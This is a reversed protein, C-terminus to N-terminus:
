SSDSQLIPVESVPGFHTEMAKIQSDNGDSYLNQSALAVDQSNPWDIIDFHKQTRRHQRGAQRVMWFFWIDDGRPCLKMFLERDLVEDSFCGPPYLIGGVGTPFLVRGDNQNETQSAALEWTGYPALMGEPDRHAMHSRTAIVCDPHKKSSAVLGALWEPPYYVDDDATVYFCDPNEILAPILKKYSRLDECPKIQLGAAELERVDKPLAGIDSEAIWLQVADAPVYQDLLSRVTKALDPFRPPYSTLTIILPAALGHKEVPTVVPFRAVAALAKRLLVRSRIERYILSLRYVGRM